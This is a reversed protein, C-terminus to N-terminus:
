LQGRRCHRAASRKGYQRGNMVAKTDPALFFMISLIKAQDAFLSSAVTAIKNAKIKTGAVAPHTKLEYISAFANLRM